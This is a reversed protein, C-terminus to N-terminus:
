NIEQPKEIPKQEEKIKNTKIPTYKIIVRPKVDPNSASMNYFAFLDLNTLNNRPNILLGYNNQGILWRQFPVILRFTYKDTIGSEFFSPYIKDEIILKSSDSIYYSNLTYDTESSFKSNSPDLTLILKADNITANSPIKNLNFVMTEFYSVGAQLYFNDFGPTLNADAFFLSQSYAHYITDTKGGKQVIFYLVPLVGSEANSSYFSKLVNSSNNPSLVIGYNKNVYSSDASYELWDKVMVTNLQINVEQTDNTPSGTYSGQSITGFTSSSVSDLTVRNFTLDSQIKFVDFSIQGLSDSTTPPFYYNRYKLRLEAYLVNASDFNTSLGTFKLLAKSEYTGSKGVILNPSSSTNIYKKINSMSIDMTDTYSDFIRVGVTDTGPIFNLGLNGPEDACSQFIFPLALLFFLLIKQINSLSLIKHL